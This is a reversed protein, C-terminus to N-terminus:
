PHGGKGEWPATLSKGDFVRFLGWVLWWGLSIHRQAFMFLSGQTPPGGRQQCWGMGKSLPMQIALSQGQSFYSKGHSVNAAEACTSSTEKSLVSVCLHEFNCSALQCTFWQSDNYIMLVDMQQSYWWRVAVFHWSEIFGSGLNGWFTCVECTSQGTMKEDWPEHCKPVRSNGERTFGRFFVQFIRSASVLTWESM